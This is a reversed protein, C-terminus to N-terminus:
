VAEILTGATNLFRIISRTITAVLASRTATTHMFARRTLGLATCTIESRLLLLVTRTRAIRATRGRGSEGAQIPVEVRTPVGFARM